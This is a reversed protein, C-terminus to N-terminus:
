LIEKLWRKVVNMEIDIIRFVITSPVSLYGTLVYSDYMMFLMFM